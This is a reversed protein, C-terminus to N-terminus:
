ITLKELETYRIRFTANQAGAAAILTGNSDFGEDIVTPIKQTHGFPPVGGISYGTVQKVEDATAMRVATAQRERKVTELDIRRDGPVLYLVFQGDIHLLLSKVIDKVQVGNATAADQATHTTAESIDIHIPLNHQELYHQFTNTAM